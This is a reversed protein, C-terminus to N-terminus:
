VPMITLPDYYKVHIQCINSLNANAQLLGTKIEIYEVNVFRKDSLNHKKFSYIPRKNGKRFLKEGKYWTSYLLSYISLHQLEIKREIHGSYLFHFAICNQSLIYLIKAIKKIKLVFCWPWPLKNFLVNLTHKCNYLTDMVMM